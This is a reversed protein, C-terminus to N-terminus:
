ILIESGMVGNHETETLGEMVGRKEVQGFGNLRGLELVGEELFDGLNSWVETGEKSM